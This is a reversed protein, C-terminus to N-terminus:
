RSRRTKAGFSSCVRVDPRSPAVLEGGKMKLVWFKLPRCKIRTDGERIPQRFQFDHGSLIQLVLEYGLWGEQVSVWSRPLVEVGRGERVAVSNEWLQNCWGGHCSVHTM